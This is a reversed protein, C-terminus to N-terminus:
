LDIKVTTSNDLNNLKVIKYKIDVVLQQTDFNSYVSVDYVLIRPEVRDLEEEIIDEIVMYTIEDMKQFLVRDLDCGFEPNGPVQYKQTTVINRIANDIAKIDTSLKIDNNRALLRYDIDIYVAM